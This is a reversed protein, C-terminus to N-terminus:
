CAKAGMCVDGRMRRGKVWKARAGDISGRSRALMRAGEVARWGSVGSLVGQGQEQEALWRRKWTVEGDEGRYKGGGVENESVARGRMGVEEEM